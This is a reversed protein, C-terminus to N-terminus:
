STAINPSPLTLTVMVFNDDFVGFKPYRNAFTKGDLQEFHVTGGHLELIQKVLTLGLGTGKTHHHQTNSFYRDFAKQVVFDPLVDSDNIICITTHTDSQWVDILLYLRGYYIANDIVNQLAQTLWFRDVMLLIDQPMFCVQIGLQSINASQQNLCADIMQSVNYPELELKFTPQELKALTLLNDVLHTLKATQEKIITSFQHREQATLEDSLLEGSAKIATIPSKLEHTLTHVYETVYAKNEITDKMTHISATLENLEKGLYFHPPTQSALGQTYRNVIQISHRLWWAMLVSTLLILGMISVIIKILEDRSKDLYPILTQTPKGVSVVGVMKDQYIIPSAVYMVSHGNVDTSRAGYKHQLTLYVDNWRSFDAGVSKQQSDYIVKGQADTIYLHFQSKTKQDYWLPKQHDYFATTLKANLNDHFVKPDTNSQAVDAAILVSLLRATDVLSDEVVRKASPRLIQQTYYFVLGCTIVILLVFTLWIRFFVSLSIKKKFIQDLLRHFALM